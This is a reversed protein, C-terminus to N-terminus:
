QLDFQQRHLFTYSLLHCFGLNRPPTVTPQLAMLCTVFLKAADMVASEIEVSQLENMM